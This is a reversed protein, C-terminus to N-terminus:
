FTALTSLCIGSQIWDTELHVIRGGQHDLRPVKLVVRFLIKCQVAHISYFRDFGFFVQPEQAFLTVCIRSKGPSIDIDNIFDKLLMKVNEFQINGISSSADILLLVDVPPLNRAPHDMPLQSTTRDFTGDNTIGEFIDKEYDSDNTLPPVQITTERKPHNENKQRPVEGPNNIGPSLHGIQTGNLTLPVGVIPLIQPLPPNQNQSKEAKNARDVEHELQHQQHLNQERYYDRMKNSDNILELM